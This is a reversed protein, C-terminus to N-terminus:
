LSSVWVTQSQILRDYVILLMRVVHPNVFTSLYSQM